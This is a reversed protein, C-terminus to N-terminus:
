DGTEPLANGLLVPDTKHRGWVALFLPLLAVLALPWWNLPPFAAALLLGSTAAAGRAQWPSCTM